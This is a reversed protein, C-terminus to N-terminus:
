KEKYLYPKIVATTYGDSCFAYVIIQHVIIFVLITHTQELMALCVSWVKWHRATDLVLHTLWPQKSLVLFISEM